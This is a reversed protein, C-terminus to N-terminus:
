NKKNEEQEKVLQDYEYKTLMVNFDVHFKGEEDTYGFEVMEKQDM